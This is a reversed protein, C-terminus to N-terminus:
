FWVLAADNYGIDWALMLGNHIALLEVELGDAFSVPGSFGLIWSGEHDRFLGGYGAWGPNGYSSGDVNLAVQYEYPPSWIVLLNCCACTITPSALHLLPTTTYGSSLICYDLTSVM